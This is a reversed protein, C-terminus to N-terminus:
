YALEPPIVLFRKGGIKMGPIGEDWGKIVLGTGIAVTFPKKRDHSSDVKTGDNLWITYHVEIADGKKVADGEGETLDYYRLKVTKGDLKVDISRERATPPNPPQAAVLAVSLVFCLIALPKM